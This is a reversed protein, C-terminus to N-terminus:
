ARRILDSFKKKKLIFYDFVLSRQYMHKVADHMGEDFRDEVRRKQKQKQYHAYFYFHAKVIAICDAAKGQLLFHIGALGDLFLRIIFTSLLRRREMNKYLMMLNNRFNLYTKRPNSKHLTGGGVHFVKSDPCYMIKHGRNHIRWCLDIEEMHAFFEEDFGGAAHFVDSRVCMAAGSVWFVECADNYQGEDKEMDEFIRGRCFPYVYKDIFGGAAGAYEFMEPHDYSLIKPQLVALGPTTDMMRLMPDLWGPTVEVDSNLLVYYEAQIQKLVNNYGKAFGENLSNEIIRVMSFHERAYAISDDTSANDALIVEAQPSNEVVSGLFKSLFKRGNWNLIVVAIKM